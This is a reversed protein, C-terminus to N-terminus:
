PLLCCCMLRPHPPQRLCNEASRGRLDPLKGAHRPRNNEGSGLLPGSVKAFLHQSPHPAPRHGRSAPQRRLPLNSKQIRGKIQRWWTRQAGM